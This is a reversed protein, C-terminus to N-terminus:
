IILNRQTDIGFTVLKMNYYLYLNQIVLDYDRNNVQLAEKVKEIITILKSPPLLSISSDGKPLIRIAQSYEKLQKIFREYM